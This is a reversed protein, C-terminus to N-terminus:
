PANGSKVQAIYHRKIDRNYTINHQFKETAVDVRLHGPKSSLQEQITTYLEKYVTLGGSWHM